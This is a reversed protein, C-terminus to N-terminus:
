PLDVDKAVSEWTATSAARAVADPLPADLADQWWVLTLESAAMDPDLPASTLRAMCVAWPLRERALRATSLEPLPIVSPEVAFVPAGHRRLALALAKERQRANCAPDLGGEFIGFNSPLVSLETVSVTRGGPLEVRFLRDLSPGEYGQTM